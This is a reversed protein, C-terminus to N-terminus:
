LGLDDFFEKRSKERAKEAKRAKEEEALIAKAEERTVAEERSWAAVPRHGGGGHGVHVGEHGKERTCYYRGVDNMDPHRCKPSYADCSPLVGHHLKVLAERGGYMEMLRPDEDFDDM